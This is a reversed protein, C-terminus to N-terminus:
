SLEISIAFHFPQVVLGDRFFIPLEDVLMNLQKTCM